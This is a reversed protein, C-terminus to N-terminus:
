ATNKVKLAHQECKIFQQDSFYYHKNLSILVTVNVNNLM